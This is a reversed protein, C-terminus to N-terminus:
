LPPPYIVGNTPPLTTGGVVRGAGTHQPGPQARIADRITAAHEYREEEIALKLQEKLTM